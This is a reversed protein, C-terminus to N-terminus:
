DLPATTEAAVGSEDGDPRWAYAEEESAFAQVIPEAFGLTEYCYDTGVFMFHRPSRRIVDIKKYAELLKSHEAEKIYVDGRYMVSGDSHKAISYIMEEFACYIQCRIKVGYSRRTKVLARRGPLGEVVILHLAGKWLGIDLVFPDYIGDIESPYPRCKLTPDPFMVADRDNLSTPPSPSSGGVRETYVLNRPVKDYKRM